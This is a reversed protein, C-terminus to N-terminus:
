EWWNKDKIKCIALKMSINSDDIKAVIGSNFFRNTQTYKFTKNNVEIDQNNFSCILPKNKNFAKLLSSEYLFTTDILTFIFVVYILKMKNMLKDIAKSEQKLKEECKNSFRCEDESLNLKGFNNIKYLVFPAIAIIIGLSGIFFYATAERM